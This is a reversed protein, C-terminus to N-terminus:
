MTNGSPCSLPLILPSTLKKSVIKMNHQWISMFLPLILPLTLKKFVIKVNHQWISMFLLLILPLTLKKPIIKVNRQWISMFLPLIVPLGSHNVVQGYKHCPSLTSMLHIQDFCSSSFITYHIPLSTYIIIYTFRVRNYFFLAGGIAM